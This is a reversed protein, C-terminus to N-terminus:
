QWKQKLHTVVPDGALTPATKVMADEPAAPAPGKSMDVPDWKYFIGSRTVCVMIKYAVLFSSQAM